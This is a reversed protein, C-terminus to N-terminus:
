KKNSIQVLVNKRDIDIHANINGKEYILDINKLQETPEKISVIQKAKVIIDNLTGNMDDVYNKGKEILMGQEDFIAFNEENM